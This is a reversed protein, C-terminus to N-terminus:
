FLEPAEEKTYFYRRLTEESPEALWGKLQVEADLRYARARRQLRALKSPVAAKRLLGKMEEFVTESGLLLKGEHLIKSAVM